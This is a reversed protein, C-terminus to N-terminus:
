SKIVDDCKNRKKRTKKGKKRNIPQNIIDDVRFKVRQSTM